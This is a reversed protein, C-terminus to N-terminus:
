LYYKANLELQVKDVNKLFDREMIYGHSKVHFVPNLYPKHTFYRGVHHINQSM